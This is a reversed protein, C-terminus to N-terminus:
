RSIQKAILAPVAKEADAFERWIFFGQNHLDRLWPELAM